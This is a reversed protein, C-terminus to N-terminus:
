FLKKFFDEAKKELKDKYKDVVREKFLDDINSKFDPEFVTGLINVEITDDASLYKEVSNNKIFDEKLDFLFSFNMNTQFDIYGDGSVDTESGSGELKGFSIKQDKLYVDTTIDRMTTRSLSEKGLKKILKNVSLTKFIANSIKLKGQGKYKEIRFDEGRLNFDGFVEGYVPFKDMDNVKLFELGKLNKFEFLTNIMFPSKIISSNMLNFSGGFIKGKGSAKLMKDTVSVKLDLANVPFRIKKKSETVFIYQLGPLILDVHIKKKDKKLDLDAKGQITGNKQVDLKQEKIDFHRFLEGKFIKGSLTSDIHNFDRFTGNLELSSLRSSGSLIDVGFRELHITTEDINVTQSLVRIDLGSYTFLMREIVAKVTYSIKDGISFDGSASIQGNKVGFGFEKEYQAYFEGYNAADLGSVEFDGAIIELSDKFINLRIEEGHFLEGSVKLDLPSVTGKVDIGETTLAAGTVDDNLALVLGNVLLGSIDVKFDPNANGDDAYIAGPQPFLPSFVLDKLKELNFRGSRYRRIDLVPKEIRIDSIKLNKKLLGALSFDAEASKVSLLSKETGPEYIVIDDVSVKSFLNTSIGGISVKLDLKESILREVDNSFRGTLYKDVGIKVGAVLLFLIVAIWLVKKRRIM